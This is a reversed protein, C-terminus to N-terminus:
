IFCFVCVVRRQSGSCWRCTHFNSGNFCVVKGKSPTIINKISFNDSMNLSSYISKDLDKEGYKENFILTEGNDFENLYMVVQSHDFTYDVHPDGNRYISDCNHTLNLSARLIKTVELNNNDCFKYLIREFFPYWSPSVISNSSEEVRKMLVHAIFPFNSSTSSPAYYWPFESSLVNNDIIKIDESSIFNEHEILM